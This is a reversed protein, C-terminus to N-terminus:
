ELIGTRLWNNWYELMGNNWHSDKEVDAAGVTADIREFPQFLFAVLGDSEKEIGVDMGVLFILFSQFGQFLVRFAGPEFNYVAILIEKFLEQLIYRV